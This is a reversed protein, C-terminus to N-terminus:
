LANAWTEIATAAPHVLSTLNSIGISGIADWAAVAEIAYPSFAGTSYETLKALVENVYEDYPQILGLGLDSGAIELLGAKIM